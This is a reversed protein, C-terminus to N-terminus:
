ERRCRGERGCAACDGCCSRGEGCGCGGRNRLIHAVAAAFWLLIAGLLIWSLLDM